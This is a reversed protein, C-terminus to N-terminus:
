EHYRQAEYLFADCDNTSTTIFILAKDPTAQSYGRQGATVDISIPNACQPSGTINYMKFTNFLNATRPNLSAPNYNAVHPYLPKSPSKVKDELIHFLRTLNDKFNVTFAQPPLSFHLFQGGRGPRGGRGGGVPGANGMNYVAWFQHIVFTKRPDNTLVDQFDGNMVIQAPARQTAKIEADDYQENATPISPDHKFELMFNNPNWIIHGFNQKFKRYSFFGPYFHHFMLASGQSLKVPEWSLFDELDLANSPLRLTGYEPKPPIAQGSAKALEVKKLYEKDEMQMLERHAKVDFWPNVKHEVKTNTFTLDASSLRRSLEFDKSPKKGNACKLLEQLDHLLRDSNMQNFKGDKDKKPENITSVLAGNGGLNATVLKSESIYLFTPPREIYEYQPGVPRVQAPPAGAGGNGGRGVYTVYHNGIVQQTALIFSGADGGAGGNISGVNPNANYHYGDIGSLTVICPCMFEIVPAILALDTSPLYIYPTNIVIKQAAQVFYFKVREKQGLTEHQAYWQFNQDIVFVNPIGGTAYPNHPIVSPPVMHPPIHHPHHTTAPAPTVHVPAPAPKSSGGNIVMNMAAGAANMAGAMADFAGTFDVSVTANTSKHSHSSHHHTAAHAHPPHHAAPAAHPPHHAPAAHPPHHAAHAHPPHHAPAAHPPHHAPAAHPPHHAAPAAHPTPKKNIDMAAMRAETERMQKEIRADAERHRQEAAAFAADSRAQAAAMNADMRAQSEAMQKEIRSHHDM